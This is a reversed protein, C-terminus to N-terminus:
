QKSPQNQDALKPDIIIQLPVNAVNVWKSKKKMDVLFNVYGARDAKLLIYPIDSFTRMRHYENFTITNEKNGIESGETDTVRIRYTLSVNKDSIDKYWLSVLTGRVPLVIKEEPQTSQVPAFRIQELTLLSLNNTRKDIIVRECYVTWIHRIM